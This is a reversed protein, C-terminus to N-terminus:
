DTKVRRRDGRTPLGRPSGNVGGAGIRAEDLPVVRDHAVDDRRLEIAPSRSDHAVFSRAAPM